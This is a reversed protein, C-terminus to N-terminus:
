GIVLDDALLAADTVGRVELRDTDSFVLIVSTATVIVNEPALISAIDRAGGGWLTPDLLITDTDDEFDLVTDRGANFVFTDAGAAGALLDDGGRGDIWDAGGNGNILNAGADGMLVDASQSGALNEISLYSDGAADGTNSVPNALDARVGAAADAYTAYDVGNGGALRDAGAGGRLTDNGEGGDLTDAGAGGALLDAGGNGILVNDGGDGTLTDASQSGALNEISVYSDGAADGTNGAPNSLDARVGAAADAYTAYDVGGGGALRDAGAGGRLTDNGEGGDLQDNGAGGALLDAGGNGILVNDGADGILVDDQQSGALNEISLYSDGAADGTNAAPNSLDARVGATADAYTAYDVGNGGALRDAGAGGRLTDNGEGGDLTDNGAGGALLDAGGNGVLVNDGGDGTLTDASQSGALNEVSVYSDGAADGTNAAPNSLDARVGAAADAYTAYDVGGGGALRDAGAGGRLTDNGEGGDLTDAGAGGALLDNGAQGWLANAGADGTLTDAFGTGALDEIGTLVTGAAAGATVALPQTALSAAVGAGLAQFDVLDRGEGGDVTDAGASALIVDNGATGWIAEAADSGIFRGADDTRAPMEHWLPFLTSRGLMAATIPLGNSSWIELVEGGWALICGTATPTITLDAADFVRGWASLDIQDIGVQFDSIRDAAGDADLVFVDAGAGGSLTDAGAGDRILDAGGGGSLLDDGAGGLLLDGAEGGTLTDAGASGTLTPALPGPDLRLRTIGTGEGAVFVEIQGDVARVELAKIGELATDASDLLTAVLVLRGDPLLAFLHLGGDGGGAVVFARDGLTVTAVASVGALRTDLTDIVHDAVVLRGQATVEIVSLSSSGASAVVLYSHGDLGVQAVGSPDAMGLGGAAGIRGTETLLGDNGVAYSVVRDGALSLAVLYPQGGVSVSTLRSIDVGQVATGTSLSGIQTMTGAPNWAQIQITGDNARAAYFYTQGGVQVFTEASIVGSLGGAPRFIGGIGGDATLRYTLMATQNAGSVALAPKAMGPMLELTAPAPVQGTSAVSMTDVLSLSDGVALALLGGGARTASYLMLRGGQESLLLDEVGSLLNAPAGLFTEITQFSYM